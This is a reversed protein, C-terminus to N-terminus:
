IPWMGTHHASKQITAVVFMPTLSKSIVSLGYVQPLEVAPNSTKIFHNLTLLCLATLIARCVLRVESIPDLSIALGLFRPEIGPLPLSEKM